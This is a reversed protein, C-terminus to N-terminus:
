HYPSWRSRCKSPCEKGVRREETSLWLRANEHAVIATGARGLAENSGTQTRHWCTNFLTSVAGGGSLGAVLGALEAARDSPGGDVLLVGAGGIMAVVNIDGVRLLHLGGRLADAGSFGAPVTNAPRSQAEAVPSREWPPGLAAAALAGAAGQLLRRRTRSPAIRAETSSRAIM